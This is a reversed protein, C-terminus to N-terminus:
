VAVEVTQNTALSLNDYFGSAAAPADIRVWVAAANAVGALIQSGLLLAAGPPAAALGAQSSALRIASAPLQLGTAADTVAVQIPDVGPNSAAQFKTGLLPAGLYAVRDIAPAAGDVAQAVVLQAFATTLGADQFFSLSNSM